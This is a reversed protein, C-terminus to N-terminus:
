LSISSEKHKVNQKFLLFLYSLVWCIDNVKVNLTGFIPNYVHLSGDIYQITMDRDFQLLTSNICCTFQQYDIINHLKDHKVATFQFSM